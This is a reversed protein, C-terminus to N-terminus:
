VGKMSRSASPVGAAREPRGAGASREGRYLREYANTMAGVSFETEARHRAARGLRERLERDDILSRLADALAAPDGAPTLLGHEGHTVAEPIGGVRTSVVPNGGSMAELISLPLGESYSSMAFVDAAAQLDPIDERQGLLHV